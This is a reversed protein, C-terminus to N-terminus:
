DQALGNEFSPMLTRVFADGSLIKTTAVVVEFPFDRQRGLFRLAAVELFTVGGVYYVLLVPRKKARSGQQRTDADQVRSSLGTSPGSIATHLDVPVAGQKFDLVPTPLVRLAAALDGAGGGGAMAQVVRASLPAYGACVYSMDQPPTASASSSSSAAPTVDSLLRLARRLAAWPAAAATDVVWGLGGRKLLGAAELAALAHMTEYGYTQVIDRRLADFRGSPIGGRTISQLCLLRLVSVLPAQECILDEIADFCAEGTTHTHLVLPYWPFILPQTQM